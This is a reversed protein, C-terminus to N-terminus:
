LWLKQSSQIISEVASMKAMTLSTDSNMTECTELGGERQELPEALNMKVWKTKAQNAQPEYVAFIRATSDIRLCATGTATMWKTHSPHFHQIKLLALLYNISWEVSAYRLTSQSCCHAWAMQPLGILCAVMLVVTYLLTLQMNGHMSYMYMLKPSLNFSLVKLFWLCRPNTYLVHVTHIHKHNQNHKTAFLALIHM